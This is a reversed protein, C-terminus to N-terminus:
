RSSERALSLSGHRSREASTSSTPATKSRLRHQSFCTTNPISVTLTFNLHRRIPHSFTMVAWGRPAAGGAEVVVVVVTQPTYGRSSLRIVRSLTLYHSPSPPTPCVVQPPLMPPPRRTPTSPAIGKIGHHETHNCSNGRNRRRNRLCQQRQHHRMAEKKHSKAAM